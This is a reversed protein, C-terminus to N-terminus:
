VNADGSVRWGDPVGDGDTDLAFDPNRILNAPKEASAGAAATLCVALWMPVSFRLMVPEKPSLMSTAPSLKRSERWGPSTFVPRNQNPRKQEVTTKQHCQFSCPSTAAVTKVEGAGVRMKEDRGSSVGRLWGLTSRPSHFSGLAVR